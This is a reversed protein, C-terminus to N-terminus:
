AAGGKTTQPVLAVLITELLDETAFGTEDQWPADAAPLPETFFTDERGLFERAIQRYSHLYRRIVAERMVPSLYHARGGAQREAAVLQGVTHRKAADPLGTRRVLAIAAATRPGVSPNERPPRVFGTGDPVGIVSLFDAFIDPQNQAAEFPRVIMAERGFLEAWQRLVGLYEYSVTGKGQHYLIFSEITGKWPPAAVTKIAQAYASEFAHDHRRLYCLIRVQYGAFLAKIRQREPHGATIFYESSIVIRQCAAAAAEAALDPGITTSKELGAPRDYDAIGLAFNVGYHADGHRGTRPYLVGARQLAEANTALFRQLSTTGTKPYGIHLFLERM